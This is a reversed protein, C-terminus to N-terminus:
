FWATARLYAHTSPELSGAITFRNKAPDSAYGEFWFGGVSIAFGDALHYEFDLNAFWDQDAISWYFFASPRFDNRAWMGQLRLTVIPALRHQPVLGPALAMAAPPLAPVDARRTLETILQLHADLGSIMEREIAVTARGTPVRRLYFCSPAGPALEIADECRDDIRAYYAAEAKILADIRDITGQASAAAMAVRENEVRVEPAGTALDARAYVTPLPNRGWLAYLSTKWSGLAIDMAAGGGASSLSDPTEPQVIPISDPVAIPIAFPQTRDLQYPSSRTLVIGLAQLTVRGFVGSAHLVPAPLKEDIPRWNRLRRFDRPNVIDVVPWFDTIGWSLIREGISLDFKKYYRAAYVERFAVRVDESLGDYILQPRGIIRLPGVHSELELQLRNEFLVLDRRFTGRLGLAVYSQFFGHWLVGRSLAELTAKGEGDAVPEAQDTTLAPLEPPGDEPAGKVPTEGSSPPTAAGQAAGTAPALLEGLKRQWLQLDDLEAGRLAFSTEGVLRRERLDVAHLWVQYGEGEVSYEGYVALRVRMSLPSVIAIVCAPEGRCSALDTLYGGGLADRLEPHDLVPRQVAARIAGGVLERLHQPEEIRLADRDASKELRGLGVVAI